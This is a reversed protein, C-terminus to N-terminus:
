KHQSQQSELCMFGNLGMDGILLVVKILIWHLSYIAVLSIFLQLITELRFVLVNQGSIINLPSCLNFTLKLKEAGFSVGKCYWMKHAM